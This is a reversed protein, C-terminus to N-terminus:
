VLCIHRIDFIDLLLLIGLNFRISICATNIVQSDRAKLVAPNSHAMHSFDLIQNVGRILEILLKKM